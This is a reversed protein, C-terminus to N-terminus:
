KEKIPEAAPFVVTVRYGPARQIQVNGNLQETLLRVLELGFSSGQRPPAELAEVAGSDEVELRWSTEPM